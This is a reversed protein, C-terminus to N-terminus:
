PPVSQLEVQTLLVDSSLYASSYSMAITIGSPSILKKLLM